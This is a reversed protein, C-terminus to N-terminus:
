IKYGLNELIFVTKFIGDSWSNSLYGNYKDAIKKVSAIGLGHNKKDVKTTEINEGHIVIKESFTNEMKIVSYCGDNQMFMRIKVKKSKSKSVAEFANSLLNGMATVLDIDDVYQVNFGPEVYVDYEIGKREAEDKYDSLVTNLIINGSYEILQVNEFENSIEHLIKKAENIQENVLLRYVTKLTHNTDHLLTIYRKNAENLQEYNELEFQHKLANGEKAKRQSWVERYNKLTSDKLKEVSKMHFQKVMMFLKLAINM